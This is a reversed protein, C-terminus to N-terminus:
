SARNAGPPGELLEAAASCSRLVSKYIRWALLVFCDDFSKARSFWVICDTHFPCPEFIETSRRRDAHGIMCSKTGRDDEVGLILDNTGIDLHSCMNHAYKHSVLVKSSNHVAASCRHRM